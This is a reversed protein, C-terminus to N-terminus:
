TLFNLMKLNPYFRGADTKCNEVVRAKKMDSDCSKYGGTQSLDDSFFSINGLFANGLDM